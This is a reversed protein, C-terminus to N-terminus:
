AGGSPPPVDRLLREHKGREEEPLSPPMGQARTVLYLLGALGGVLTLLVALGPLERAVLVILLVVAVAFACRILWRPIM